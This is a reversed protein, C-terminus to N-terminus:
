GNTYRRAKNKIYCNDSSWLWLKLFFFLEKENGIPFLDSSIHYQHPQMGMEPRVLTTAAQLETASNCARVM